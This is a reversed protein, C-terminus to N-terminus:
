NEGYLARDDAQDPHYGSAKGRPGATKPEAGPIKLGVGWGGRPADSYSSVDMPDVEEKKGKGNKGKGKGGAKGGKSIPLQSLPMYGIDAQKKLKAQKQQEVLMMRKHQQAQIRQVKRDAYPDVEPENHSGIFPHPRYQELVEQKKAARNSLPAGEAAMAAAFEDLEADQQKSEHINAWRGQEPEPEGVLQKKALRQALAPPLCPADPPKEEVVPPTWRVENSIVNWYYHAQHGDDFVKQWGPPCDPDQAPAEPEPPPAEAEEIKRRKAANKEELAAAEDAEAKAQLLVQQEKARKLAAVM